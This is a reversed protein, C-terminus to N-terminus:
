IAATALDIIIGGALKHPIYPMKGSNLCEDSRYHMVTKKHVRTFGSPWIMVPTWFILKRERVKVKSAKIPAKAAASAVSGELMSSSQSAASAVDLRNSSSL